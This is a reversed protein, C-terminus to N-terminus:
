ADAVVERSRLGDGDGSDPHCWGVRLQSGGWRVYPVDDNGRRSGSCLTWNQIDLQQGTELFYKLELLLRELLTIGPIHKQELYRASRGKHERDAEVRDRVWIAYPGDKPCRDNTPVAVDLDRTTYKGCPFHKQCKKFIDEITLGQAVVILRNFGKRQKPIPLLSFDCVLDFQNRYFEQWSALSGGTDAAVATKGYDKDNIFSQMEDKLYQVQQQNRSGSTVLKVVTNCASFLWEFFQIMWDM